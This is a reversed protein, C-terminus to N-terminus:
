RPRPFWSQALFARRACGSRSPKSPRCAWRATRPMSCSYRYKCLYSTHTSPPAHCTQLASLRFFTSRALMPPDLLVISGAKPPHSRLLHTHTRLHPITRTIHTPMYARARTCAPASVHIQTHMCEHTSTCASACAQGTLTGANDPWCDELSLLQGVPTHHCFLPLSGVQDTPDDQRPALITLDDKKPDESFREAFAEKTINVDGQLMLWLFILIRSGAQRHLGSGQRLLLLCLRTRATEGCMHGDNFHLM